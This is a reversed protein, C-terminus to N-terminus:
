VRMMMMNVLDCLIQLEVAAFFAALILLYKVSTSIVTNLMDIM